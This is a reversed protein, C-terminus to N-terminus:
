INKFMTMYPELTRRLEKRAKHLQSKSTGDSINMMKGIEKHNYGEVDHLVFVMRYKEPLARIAKELYPRLDFREDKRDFGKTQMKELDSLENSLRDKHKKEKRYHNICLNVTMRYLWSSFASDGRFSDIKKFLRVFVTQTIDEAEQRQNAMRLAINFVWDKYRQYLEYQAQREGKQCRTILEWDQDPRSANVATQDAESDRASLTALSL